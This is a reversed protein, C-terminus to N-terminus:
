LMEKKREASHSSTAAAYQIGSYATYSQNATVYAQLNNM